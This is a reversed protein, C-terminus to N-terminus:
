VRMKSEFLREKLLPKKQETIKMLPKERIVEVENM